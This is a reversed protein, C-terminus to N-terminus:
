IVAMMIFIHRHSSYLYKPEMFMKVNQQFLQLYIRPAGNFKEENVDITEFSSCITHVQCYQWDKNIGM